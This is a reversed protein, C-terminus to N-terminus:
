SEYPCIFRYVSVYTEISLPCVDRDRIHRGRGNIASHTHPVPSSLRHSPTQNRM